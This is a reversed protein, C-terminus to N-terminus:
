PRAASKHAQDLQSPELSNQSDTEPTVKRLSIDQEHEVNAGRIATTAGANGQDIIEEANADDDMEGAWRGGVYFCLSAVVGGLFGIGDNKFGVLMSATVIMVIFNAHRKQDSLVGDNVTRAVAGLEIGSVFLMVGLIASPYVGILGSLSSGFFLGVFIKLLGLIIISVETRAGFRYQAALGGSGHCFPISGFFCGVLNMMGVSVAIAPTGAPREPFLDQALAALAIVSNLCTLPIQGLSATVFGHKFEEWTPVTVSVTYVGIKPYVAKAPPDTYLKIFAIILGISFLIMATPIRKSRYYFIFVIIFSLVAWEYNNNWTWSDGWFSKAQNVLDAAKGGFSVATGLQIGRIISMPTYKQVYHITRTLGLIMVVGSVGMGAGMVSGMSMHNTLAIAAISKMPQVCMPMRFALGTLINWLGGFILSATLDVQGTIALSLMIPLLTGLDGLSGSLEGLRFGSRFSQLRDKADAKFKEAFGTPEQHQTPLVNSM